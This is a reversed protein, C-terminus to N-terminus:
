PNSLLLGHCRENKEGHRLNILKRKKEKVVSIYIQKM